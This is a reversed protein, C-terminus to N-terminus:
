PPDHGGPHWPHCRLIRLLGRWTGRVAGYKRIAGITYASCTPTFRCNQGILPSLTIQYVRVLGILIRSPVSVVWQFATAPWGTM